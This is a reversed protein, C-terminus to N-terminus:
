WDKVNTSIDGAMAKWQLGRSRPWTGMFTTEMMVGAARRSQQHANRRRLAPSLALNTLDVLERRHSLMAMMNDLKSRISTYHGQREKALKRFSEKLNSPTPAPGYRIPPRLGLKVGQQTSSCASSASSSSTEYNIMACATSVLPPFGSSPRKTGQDTQMGKDVHQNGTQTSIHCASVPVAVAASALCGGAKLLHQAPSPAPPPAPGGCLPEEQLLDQEMWEDRVTSANSTRSSRRSKEGTKPALQPAEKKTEARNPTSTMCVQDPVAAKPAHCPPTSPLKLLLHDYVGSGRVSLPTERANLPLSQAYLIRFEEDFKETIQGTLEILNSSNLKGDTWNFRDTSPLLNSLTVIVVCSEKQWDVNLVIFLALEAFMMKKALFM